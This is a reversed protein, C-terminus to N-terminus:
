QFHDNITLKGMLVQSKGYNKTHKGTSLYRFRNTELWGLVFCGRPWCGSHCSKVRGTQWNSLRLRMMVVLGGIKWTAIAGGFYSPSRSTWREKSIQNIWMMRVWDWQIGVFEQNQGVYDMYIYTSMYTKPFKIWWSGDGNWLFPRSTSAALTRWNRPCTGPLLAQIQDDLFYGRTFM